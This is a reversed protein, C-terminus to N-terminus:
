TLKLMESTEYLPLGMVGSYSGELRSIFAAAGGQIAYAGAKDLPEGTNCYSECEELTLSKFCVHSTNLEVTEIEHILAVASLVYHTRGSLCQLMAIADDKDKPKGLIKDDLVVETDAALVPLKKQAIKKGARAKELALRCVFETATETGDWKEVINIDLIEYEVNLQKLLKRRRPSKSALYIM